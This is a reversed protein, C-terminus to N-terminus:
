GKLTALKLQERLFGIEEQQSKIRDKLEAVLTANAEHFSNGNGFMSHDQTCQHFVMKEDFSLLSIVTMDFVHAISELLELTLRKDGTEIRGYEKVDNFGLRDAMDQQSLHKLKRVDKIKQIYPSTEMAM